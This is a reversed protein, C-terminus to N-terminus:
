ARDQRAGAGDMEGALEWGLRQAEPRRAALPQPLVDPSPVPNM